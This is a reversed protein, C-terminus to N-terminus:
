VRRIGQQTELLQVIQQQQQQQNERRSQVHPSEEEELYEFRRRLKGIWNTQIKWFPFQKKKKEIKM